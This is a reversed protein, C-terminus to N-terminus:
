KVVLDTLIGILSKALLALVFGIVAYLIIQKGQSVKNTDGAATMYVFGGYVIVLPALVLAINLIWAVVADILAAFSEAEIPNSIKGTSSVTPGTITSGGSSGSGSSGSGGSYGYNDNFSDTENSSYGSPCTCGTSENFTAQVVGGYVNSATPYCYISTCSSARTENEVTSQVCQELSSDWRYLSSICDCIGGSPVLLSGVCECSSDCSQNAHWTGRASECASQSYCAPSNLYGTARVSFVPILFLSILIVFFIKKM